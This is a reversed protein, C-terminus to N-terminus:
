ASNSGMAPVEPGCPIDHPSCPPRSPLDLAERLFRDMAHAGFLVWGRRSAGAALAASLPNPPRERESNILRMRERLLLDVSSRMADSKRFFAMQPHRRWAFSGPLGSKAQCLSRTASKMSPHKQCPWSQPRFGSGRVLGSYQAIFIACLRFRSAATRLFRRLSPHRTMEMQSHVSLLADVAHRLRTRAM